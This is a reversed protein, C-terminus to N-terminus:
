KKGGGGTSVRIEETRYNGVWLVQWDPTWCDGFVVAQPTGEEALPFQFDKLIAPKADDPKKPRPTTLATIAYSIILLAIAWVFNM